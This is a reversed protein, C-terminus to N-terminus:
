NNDFPYYEEPTLYRERAEIDWTNINQSWTGKQIKRLGIALYRFADAADSHKDHVPKSLYTQTNKDFKARYERLSEIGEECKVADFSCMALTAQVAAIGEEISLKPCIKVKLGLDTLLKARTKGTQDNPHEADWPLIHMSYAYPKNLVTRAHEPILSRHAQYYDIIRIEPGYQQAFWIVTNNNFGLDWATVVPKRPDWDVKTIKDQSKLVNMIDAYYAGINGADFSCMYEQNFMQPSMDKRLSEISDVYDVDPDEAAKKEAEEITAPFVGTDEITLFRTYWDKKDLAENYVRYLYDHGKPTGLFIAWGGTSSLAPRLVLEWMEPNMDGVEDIICGSWESGRLADPNQAGIVKIFAGNILRIEKRTENIKTHPINGVYKKLYDWAIIIGQQLQPAVYAYRAGEYKSELAKQILENIALITKGARRHIIFVNFRKMNEHIEAQFPRPTYDISIEVQDINDKKSM